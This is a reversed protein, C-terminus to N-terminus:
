KFIKLRTQSHMKWSADHAQLGKLVGPLHADGYLLYIKTDQPNALIQKVVHENRTDLAVQFLKQHAMIRPALHLMVSMLAHAIPQIKAQEEASYAAMNNAFAAFHDPTEANKHAQAPNLAPLDIPGFRHEYAAVFEDVTMDAVQARDKQINIFRQQDQAELGLAKAVQPYSNQTFKSGVMVALKQVNEAKGPQIGEYYLVYDEQTRARLDAEITNYLDPVAIHAVGQFIVTQKGNSLEYRGVTAPWYQSSAYLGIVTGWGLIGVVGLARQAASQWTPTSVPRKRIRRWLAITLWLELFLALTISLQFWVLEPLVCFGLVLLLAINLILRLTM